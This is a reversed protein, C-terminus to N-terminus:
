EETIYTTAGPAYAYVFHLIQQHLEELAIDRRQLSELDHLDGPFVADPPVVLASIGASGFCVCVCM